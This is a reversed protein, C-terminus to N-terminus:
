GSFIFDRLYLLPIKFPFILHFSLYSTFLYLSFIISDHIITGYLQPPYHNVSPKTQHPDGQHSLYSLARRCLLLGLNSGQTPFIEQLLSHSDVGTNKSPSTLPCLLRAPQLGHPRMSNSMLIIKLLMTSNTQQAEGQMLKGM